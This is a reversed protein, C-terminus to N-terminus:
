KGTYEPKKTSGLLIGVQPFKQELLRVILYYGGSFLATLFATLGAAASEDLTLGKTALYSIIAGVIIPVYTRILSTVFDGM